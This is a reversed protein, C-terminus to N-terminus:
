IKEGRLRYMWRGTRMYLFGIVATLLNSAFMAIWLGVPGMNLTRALLYALPVRVFWLRFINLYMIPRTDGSGQFAGTIVTYMSFMVVSLSIIRFLMVGHEIVEPDDIFFRVFSNGKFFVFIMGSSVFGFITWLSQSVIKKAQVTDEAGLSQGVLATTARSFGMAPMNILSIIRQGVGFAAVVATGFSNVIGQLVTFGLASLGQGISSPLGIKLYLLLASKRILLNRRRLRIGRRGRVFIFLAMASTLSRAFVTAYAAGRVGLEPFPGWGFILVPDLLINVVVTILQVILPTVSDGIGQLCGQLSFGIFMFPLGFFIIRMYQLTFTFAAPPVQLLVLMGRSLLLGIVGLLLSTLVLISLTQGLYFDVREQDGKGKSQAILTTGAQSFAFGFVILFFIVTFAISPAALAERSLKGLFYADTLNYLTQLLSSAMIPLALRILKKYLERSTLRQM